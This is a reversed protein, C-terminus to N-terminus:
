YILKMEIFYYINIEYRELSYFKKLHSKIFAFGLEVFNIFPSYPANFIVKIKLEKCSNLTLRSKHVIFNDM